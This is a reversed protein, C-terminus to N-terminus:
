IAVGGPDYATYHQKCLYVDMVMQKFYGGSANKGDISPPLLPMLVAQVLKVPYSDSLPIWPLKPNANLRICIFCEVLTLEKFSTQEANIPNV